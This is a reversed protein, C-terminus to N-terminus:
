AIISVTLYDPTIYKLIWNYELGQLDLILTFGNLQVEPQDMILEGGYVAPTYIDLPGVGTSPRWKGFRCVLVVTGDLPNRHRLLACCDLEYLHKFDRPGMGIPVYLRPNQLRVKYFNRMLKLAKDVDFKRARLFRLLFRDDDMKPEFDEVMALNKRFEKLSEARKAPTEGLLKEARKNFDTGEETNTLDFERLESETFMRAEPMALPKVSIAVDQSLESRKGM